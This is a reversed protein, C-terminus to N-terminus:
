KKNMYDVIKKNLILQERRFDKMEDDAKNLLNLQSEAKVMRRITLEMRKNMRTLREELGEIHIM